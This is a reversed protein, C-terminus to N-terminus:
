FCLSDDFFLILFLVFCVLVLFVCVFGFLDFFTVVYRPAARFISNNTEKKKPPNIKTNKHTNKKKLKQFEPVPSGSGPSYNKQTM